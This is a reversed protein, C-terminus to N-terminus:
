QQGQNQGATLISHFLCFGQVRFVDVVADLRAAIEEVVGDAAPEFPM